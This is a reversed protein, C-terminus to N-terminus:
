EEQPWKDPNWILAYDIENELTKCEKDKVYEYLNNCVFYDNTGWGELLQGLPSSPDIKLKPNKQIM